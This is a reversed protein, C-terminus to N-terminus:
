DPRPCQIKMGAVPTRIGTPVGNNTVDPQSLDPSFWELGVPEKPYSGYTSKDSRSLLPGSVDPNQSAIQSAQDVLSSQSGQWPLQRIAEQMPLQSADTYVQSTLKPDSHRMFEQAMRQSIGCRAMNTAFTYRLAHFDLKRGLADIREIGARGLDVVFAHSIDKMRPFVAASPKISTPMSALLLWALEPHLPIIAEKRNKTTSARAKIHPQKGELGCDAWVLSMLEGKRLGTYAACLYILRRNANAVSLLRSFEADNFARRKTQKGRLDAKKVKSLPNAAIREKDVMWNLLGRIADLHDNLTKPSDRKQSSRWHVFSDSTVDIPVKWGCQNILRQVRLRIRATYEDDRGLSILDDLYNALHEELPKQAAKIQAKPAVIGAREQEKTQILEKLKKEAVQKDTTKLPIDIIEYDGDLRYRGRYYRATITKGKVKKKQKYVSAIM